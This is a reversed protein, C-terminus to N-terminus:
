RYRDCGLCRGTHAGRRCRTRTRYRRWVFLALTLGAVIASHKPQM